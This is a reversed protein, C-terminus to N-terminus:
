GLGYKRMIEDDIDIRKELCYNVAHTKDIEPISAQFFWWYNPCIGAELSILIKDNSWREYAIMQIEMSPARSYSGRIMGGDTSIFHEVDEYHAAYSYKKM